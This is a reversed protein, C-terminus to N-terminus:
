SIDTRENYLTWLIRTPAHENFVSEMLCVSNTEPGQFLCGHGGEAANVAVLEEVGGVGLISGYLVVV